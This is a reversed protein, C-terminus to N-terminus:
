CRHYVLIVPSPPSCHFRVLFHSRYLLRARPPERFPGFWLDLFSKLPSPPHAIEFYWRLWGNVTAQWIGCCPFIPSTETGLTIQAGDGRM